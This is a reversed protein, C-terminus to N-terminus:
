RAAAVESPPPEGIPFLEDFDTAAFELRRRPGPAPPAAAVPRARPVPAAPERHAPHEARAIFDDLAERRFRVGGGVAVWALEGQARLRDVTSPSGRLRRAAEAKTLLQPTESM